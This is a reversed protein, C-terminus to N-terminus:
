KTLAECIKMDFLDNIDLSYEKDIEFFFTKNTFDFIKKKKLILESRFIYFNGNITYFRNNKKNKILRSFFNNKRKEIFDKPEEVPESISVISSIKKNFKIKKIARLVQALSRFPSSPQLLIIYKPMNNKKKLSNIFHLITKEMTTGDQSVSKPRQYKIKSELFNLSYKLLKNNNSSIVIESKELNARLKKAFKLTYYILPKGKVLYM